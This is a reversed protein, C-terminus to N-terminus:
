DHWVRSQVLRIRPAGAGYQGEGDGVTGALANGERANCRMHCAALNEMEHGGGKSRPVIHQVAFSRPHPYAPLTDVTEGCFHCPQPLTAKLKKRNRKYEASNDWRKLSSDAVRCTHVIM